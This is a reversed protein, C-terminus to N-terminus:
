EPSYGEVWRANKVIKNLRGKTKRGMIECHGPGGSSPDRVIGLMQSRLVGIEVSALYEEPGESAVAEPTTETVLYVSVLGDRGDQLFSQTSPRNRGLNNDYVFTAVRRYVSEDSGITADDHIHEMM